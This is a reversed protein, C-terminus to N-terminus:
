SGVERLVALAERGREMVTEIREAEGDGVVRVLQELQGIFVDAAAMVNHRNALFIDRWVRVDSGALRTMDRLGPGAVREDGPDLSLALASAVMQPLHSTRALVRDHADAEMVEPIADLAGILLRAADLAASDTRDSPVIVFPRRCFLDPDAAAAGSEAKGAIPHGGVARRAGPLKAMLEVVPAKVSGTDILLAEPPALADVTELLQLISLVPVALIVVQMDPQLEQLADSGRDILGRDAAVQLAGRDRDIGLVHSGGRRLAGAISGGVLGLGVIAVRELM